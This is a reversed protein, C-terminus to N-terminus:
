PRSTQPLITITLAISKRRSRFRVAGGKQVIAGSEWSHRWGWDTRREGYPCSPLGALRGGLGAGHSRRVTGALRPKHRPLSASCAKLGVQAM